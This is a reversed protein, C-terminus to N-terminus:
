RAAEAAPLNVRGPADPRGIAGRFDLAYAVSALLFEGTITWVRLLLSLFGLLAHLEASSGGAASRGFAQQVADPLIIYMAGVFVVERVGLGGPAWFALFGACWALCYAGAVVWWWNLKLELQPQVILFIALSQWLLGFINWGLLGVLAYGRLRKTVQPKGIRKMIRNIIGYFVKTHLLILLVPLLGVACFLWGRAAGQLNKIGFYLLCSLAVLVNALLFMVLELIQTITCISGSLGYPRALYVRGMVQWIVGPLYRALESTSWIRTAAPVPIKIGFSAVITRWVLARFVFLFVAFMGAALALRPISTNLIRGRVDPWQLIIPRVIWAICAVTVIVGLARRGWVWLAGSVAKATQQHREDLQVIEEDMDSATEGEAAGLKHRSPLIRLGRKRLWPRIRRRITPMGRLIYNVVQLALRMVLWTAALAIMGTVVLGVGVASYTAQQRRPDISAGLPDLVDYVYDSVLWMLLCTVVIAFFATVFTFVQMEIPLGRGRMVRSTLKRKGPFTVLGFGILFIPLGLPGPVTIGVPVSSLVLIWGIVNKFILWFYGRFIEIAGRRM